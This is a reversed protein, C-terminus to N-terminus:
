TFIHPSMNIIDNGGFVTKKPQFIFISLLQTVWVLMRQHSLFSTVTHETDFFYLVWKLFVM